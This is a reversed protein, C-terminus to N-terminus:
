EYYVIGAKKIFNVAGHWLGKKYECEESLRAYQGSGFAADRRAATAEYDEKLENIYKRMEMMVM